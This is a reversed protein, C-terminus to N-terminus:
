KPFLILPPDPAYLQEQTLEPYALKGCALGITNASCVVLICAGSSVRPITLLLITGLAMFSLFGTLTCKRPSWDKKRGIYALVAAWCLGMAGLACFVGCVYGTRDVLSFRMSHVPESLLWRLALGSISLGAVVASKVTRSPERM